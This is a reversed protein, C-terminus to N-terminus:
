AKPQPCGSWSVEFRDMARAGMELMAEILAGDLNVDLPAVRLSVLRVYNVWPYGIGRRVIVEFCAKNIPLPRLVSAIRSLLAGDFIFSVRRIRARAFRQLHDVSPLM